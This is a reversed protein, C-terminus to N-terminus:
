MPPFDPDYDCLQIIVMSANIQAPDSGDGERGDLVMPTIYSSHNRIEFVAGVGTGSDPNPLLDLPTVEIITHCIIMTSTSAEGVVSGPIIVENLFCGIQCAYLHFIKSM